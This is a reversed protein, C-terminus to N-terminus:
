ATYGTMKFAGTQVNMTGPTTDNGTQWTLNFVRNSAGPWRYTTSTNFAVTGGLKVVISRSAGNWAGVLLVLDLPTGLTTTPVNFTQLANNIRLTVAGTTGDIGLQRGVIINDTGLTSNNLEAGFSFSLVQAGNQFNGFLTNSLRVSYAKDGNWPTIQKSFARVIPQGATYLGQVNGSGDLNVGNTGAIYSASPWNVANRGAVFDGAAQPFTDSFLVSGFNLSFPDLAPVLSSGGFRNWRLTGPTVFLRFKRPRAPM